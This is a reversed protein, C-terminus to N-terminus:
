RHRRFTNKGKALVLHWFCLIRQLGTSMKSICSCVFRICYSGEICIRSFLLIMLADGGERTSPDQCARQRPRSFFMGWREGIGSKLSGSNKLSGAGSVIRVPSRQEKNHGFEPNKKGEAM